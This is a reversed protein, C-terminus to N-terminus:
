ANDERDEEATDAAKSMEELSRKKSVSAVVSPMIAAAASASTINFVQITVAGSCHHPEISIAGFAQALAQESHRLEEELREPSSTAQLASAINTKM